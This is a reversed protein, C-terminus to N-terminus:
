SAAALEHLDAALKAPPVGAVSLVCTHNSRRWTVVYRSGIRLTQLATGNVTTVSASPQRLAPASLITYAVRHGHWSYYVTSAFRGDLRDTRQGIARYGSSSWDPFYLNQVKVNLRAGPAAAPPPATSGRTALAAAQSISPAGPTGSPALLVVALVIVAACAMGAVLGPLNVHWRTRLWPRDKRPPPAAAALRQRLREPARDTARIQHLSKVVQREREYLESLQPSAAIRARVEKRRSRDLTGDALASLDALEAADPETLDTDKAM